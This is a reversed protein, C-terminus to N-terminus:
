AGVGDEDVTEARAADAALFRYGRHAPARLDPALRPGLSDVIIAYAGSRAAAKAYKDMNPNTKGDAGILGGCGSMLIVLPAPGSTSPAFYQANSGLLQSREEMTPYTECGGLLVVSLSAAAALLSSRPKM